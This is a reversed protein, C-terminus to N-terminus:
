GAGYPRIKIVKQPETGSLSANAIAQETRTESQSTLVWYIVKRLFLPSLLPIVVLVIDRLTTLWDM